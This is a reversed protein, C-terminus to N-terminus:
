NFKFTALIQDTLVKNEPTPPWTSVTFLKGDKVITTQYHKKPDSANAVGEIGKYGDISMEKISKPDMGTKARELEQETVNELPQYVAYLQYTPNNKDGKEVYFSAAHVGAFDQAVEKRFTTDPPIKLSISLNQRMLRRNNGAM